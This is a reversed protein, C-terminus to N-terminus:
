LGEFVKLGVGSCHTNKGGFGGAMDTWKVIWM